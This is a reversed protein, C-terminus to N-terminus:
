RVKFTLGLLMSIVFGIVITLPWLGELFAAIGVILLVLFLCFSLGVAGILFLADSVRDIM